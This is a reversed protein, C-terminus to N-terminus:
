PASPGKLLDRRWASFCEFANLTSSSPFATLMLIRACLHTNQEATRWGGEARMLLCLFGAWLRLGCLLTFTHRDRDSYGSLRLQAPPSAPQSTVPNEPHVSFVPTKPKSRHSIDITQPCPVCMPFSFCYNM